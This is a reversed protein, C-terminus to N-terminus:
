GHFVRWATGALKAASSAIRRWSPKNVPPAEPESTLLGGALVSPIAKLLRASKSAQSLRELSARWARCEAILEARNCESAAVLLRKQSDLPDLHQSRAFM